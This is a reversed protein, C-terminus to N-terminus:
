RQQVHDVVRQLEVTAFPKPLLRAGVREVSAYAEPDPFSSIVVTAPRYDLEDYTALVDLGSYTPMRIDTIVVVESADRTQACRVLQWFLERGDSAEMIDSFRDRFTRRVLWRMHPNDDAVILAPRRARRGAAPAPLEAPAAPEVPDRREGTSQDRETSM